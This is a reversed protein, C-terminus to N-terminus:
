PGALVTTQPGSQDVNALWAPQVGINNGNAIAEFAWNGNDVLNRNGLHVIDLQGPIGILQYPALLPDVPIGASFDLARDSISRFGVPDDPLNSEGAHVIGNFNYNLPVTM